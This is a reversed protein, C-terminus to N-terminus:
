LVSKKVSCPQCIQTLSGPQLALATYKQGETAFNSVKVAADPERTEAKRYRITTPMLMMLNVM